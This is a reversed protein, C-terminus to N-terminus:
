RTNYLLIKPINSHTQHRKKFNFKSYKYNVLKKILNIVDTVIINLIVGQRNDTTTTIQKDDDFM